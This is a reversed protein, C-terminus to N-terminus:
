GSMDGVRSGSGSGKRTSIGGYLILYKRLVATSSLCVTLHNSHFHAEQTHNHSHHYLEGIDDGYALDLLTLHYPSPFEIVTFDFYRSAARLNKRYSALLASNERICNLYEVLDKLGDSSYAIDKFVTIAFMNYNILKSFPLAYKFSAFIVPICGMWIAKNLKGTSMTDGPLIICFDSTLLAEKFKDDSIENTTISDPLAKWENFLMTRYQRLDLGGVSERTPAFLLYPRKAEAYIETVNPNVDRILAKSEAYPVYVERGNNALDADVRLTRIDYMNRSKAYINDRGYAIPFSFGVFIQDLNIYGLSPEQLVTTLEKHLGVYWDEDPYRSYQMAPLFFLDAVVADEVTRHYGPVDSSNSLWNYFLVDHFHRTMKGEKWFSNREEYVKTETSYSPSIPLVFVFPLKEQLVNVNHWLLGLRPDAMHKSARHARRNSGEDSTSVITSLVRTIITGRTESLSIITNM